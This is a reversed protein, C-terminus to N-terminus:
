GCSYGVEVMVDNIPEKNGYAERIYEARQRILNTAAEASFHWDSLMLRRFIHVVYEEYSLSPDFVECKDYYERNSNANARRWTDMISAKTSTAAEEAEALAHAEEYTMKGFAQLFEDASKFSNRYESYTM